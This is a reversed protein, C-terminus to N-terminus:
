ENTAQVPELYCEQGTEIGSQWKTCYEVGIDLKAKDTSAQKAIKRAQAIAYQKQSEIIEADTVTTIIETKTAVNIELKTTRPVTLDIVPENVITTANEKKVPTTNKQATITEQATKIVDDKTPTENQVCYTWKEKTTSNIELGRSSGAPCTINVDGAVRTNAIENASAMPMILLLASIIIVKKM